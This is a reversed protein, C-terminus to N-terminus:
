WWGTAGGTPKPPPSSMPDDHTVDYIWGGLTWSGDANRGPVSTGDPASTPSLWSGLANVGGYVFNQDSAPNFTTSAADTVSDLVGGVTDSVAGAARNVLYLLGGLLVAGAIAKFMLDGSVPAVKIKM